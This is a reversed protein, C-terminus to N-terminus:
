VVRVTQVSSVTNNKRKVQIQASIREKLDAIHSIVGVRRGGIRHLKELTEMVTNLCDGSLTGFGEDIFLIDCFANNDGMKALGLALSLSVMFGEGGSLNVSPSLLNGEFKDKIFIGLSLDQSCLEFRDSFRSLYYNSKELLDGLIFSQAIKRFQKGDPSGFHKNLIAWKDYEKQLIEKEETKKAVLLSNKKDEAM